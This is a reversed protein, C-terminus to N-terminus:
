LQHWRAQRLQERNDVRLPNQINAYLQMQKKGQVGIDRPTKKLFVGFPTEDDGTGAGKHETDFVTFNGDTQHYMVLLNGNEDRAKSGRFYEQQAPTLERGTNDRVSFKTNSKENGPRISDKSATNITPTTGGSSSAAETIGGVTTSVANAKEQFVFASGDPMIIRHTHYHNKGTLQVVAAMNGRIGNIEVPAAFTHRKQLERRAM